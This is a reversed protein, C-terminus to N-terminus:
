QCIKNIKYGREELAKKNIKYNIGIKKLDLEFFKFREINNQLLIFDDWKCKQCGTWDIYKNVNYHIKTKYFHDALFFSLQNRKEFKLWNMWWLKNFNSVNNRYIFNTQPSDGVPFTYGMNKVDMIYNIAEDYSIVPFLIWDVIEDIFCNRYEHQNVVIDFNRLKKSENYFQKTLFLKPDIFISEKFPSLIKLKNYTYYNNKEIDIKQYQWPKNKKIDITHFFIYEFKPDQFKQEPVPSTEDTLVTYIIM